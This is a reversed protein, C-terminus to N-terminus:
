SGRGKQSRLVVGWTHRAAGWAQGQDSTIFLKENKSTLKPKRALIYSGELAKRASIQHEHALIKCRIDYDVGNHEIMRHKGLPSIM